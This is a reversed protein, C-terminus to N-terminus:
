LHRRKADIHREDFIKGFEPVLERLSQILAEQTVSADRLQRQLDSTTQNSKAFLKEVKDFKENLEKMFRKWERQADM